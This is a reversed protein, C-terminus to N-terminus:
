AVFSAKNSWPDAACSTAREVQLRQAGHQEVFVTPLTDMSGGAPMVDVVM